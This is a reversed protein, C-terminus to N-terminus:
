WRNTKRVNELAPLIQLNWPVNLGCVNRGRLPVIHDVHHPESMAAARLYFCRIEERQEDTLWAPTARKVWARRKAIVANRKGKNKRGWAVARAKVRARHEADEQYRQRDYARRADIHKQYSARMQARMRDGNRHYRERDKRRVEEPNERRKRAKKADVCARCESNSVNRKAIHGRPCPKGTFYWRQGIARAERASIITM